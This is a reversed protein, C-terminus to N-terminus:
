QAVYLDVVHVIQGVHVSVLRHISRPLQVPRQLGQGPMEPQGDFVHFDLAEANGLGCGADAHRIGCHFDSDM